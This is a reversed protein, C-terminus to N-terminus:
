KCESRLLLFPTQHQGQGLAGLHPLALFVVECVNDEKVFSSFGPKGVLKSKEPPACSEAWQKLNMLNTELAWM